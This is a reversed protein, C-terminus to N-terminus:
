RAPRSWRVMADPRLAYPAEDAIGAQALDDLLSDVRDSESPLATIAVALPALHEGGGARTMVALAVAAARHASTMGPIQALRDEFLDSM